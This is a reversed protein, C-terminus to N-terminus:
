VKYVREVDYVGSIKKIEALIGELQKNDTIELTAEVRANL